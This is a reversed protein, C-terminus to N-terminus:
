FRLRNLFSDIPDVRREKHPLHMSIIDLITDEDAPDYYLVTMPAFRKMPTLLITVFAGEPVISFSRFEDFNYHRSGIDLGQNDMRYELQKPRKAGYVSLVIGAFIIIVVSFIDKTLWWALAAVVLSAVFIIFHWGGTKNNEIFESATWHISADDASEESQYGDPAQAFTAAPDSETTAPAAEPVPAAQTPEQPAAPEPPAPAAPHDQPTASAEPPSPAPAPETPVAAQQPLPTAPKDAYQRPSITEGPKFQGSQQGDM